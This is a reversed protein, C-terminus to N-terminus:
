EIRLGIRGLRKFNMWVRSARGVLNEDPVFGWYRSDHSADRNDGLVLYHGAPVRCAFGAPRYSCNEQFPFGQVHKPIYPQTGPERLISYTRGDISESLGRRPTWSDAFGGFVDIDAYKARRGNIALEKNAYVVLDGPLGVVRKIYDMKPNDPFRFVAVDGRTPQGTEIITRNSLPMRLGYANRNVVILDGEQLTPMMSGSPIAFPEAVFARLMFVAVIFPFLGSMMGIAATKSLRTLGARRIGWATGTAVIAALLLEAPNILGAGVLALAVVLLALVSLNLLSIPSSTSREAGGEFTKFSFGAM